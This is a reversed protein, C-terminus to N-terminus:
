NALFTLVILKDEKLCIEWDVYMIIKRREEPYEALRGIARICSYPMLLETAFLNLQLQFFREIKYMMKM